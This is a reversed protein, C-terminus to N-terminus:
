EKQAGRYIQSRRLWIEKKSQKSAFCQSGFTQVNALRMAVQTRFQRWNEYWNTYTSGEGYWKIRPVFYEQMNRKQRYLPINGRQKRLVRGGMEAAAAATAILHPIDRRTQRCCTADTTANDDDDERASRPITSTLSSGRRRRRRRHCEEEDDNSQGGGGVGGRVDDNDGDCGDVGSDQRCTDRNELSTTTM